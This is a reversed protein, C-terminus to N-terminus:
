ILKKFVCARSLVPATSDATALLCDCLPEAKKGHCLVKISSYSRWNCAASGLTDNGYQFNSAFAGLKNLELKIPLLLVVLLLIATSADVLGITFQVSCPSFTGVPM